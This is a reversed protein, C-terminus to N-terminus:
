DRKFGDAFWHLSSLTVESPPSGDLLFDFFPGDHIGNRQVTLDVHPHHMRVLPEFETITDRLLDLDGTTMLVRDVVQDAGRFWTKPAKLAQIYPTYVDPIDQLIARGWKTAISRNIIDHKCAYSPYKQTDALLIWPSILYAGRLPSSLTIRPVGDVPHLTHSIVQLVLNGGASDGTLHINQPSVGLDELLHKLGLVAQKLPIPFLADPYLTYELVAIGVDIGQKTLEQQIFKWFSLAPEAMPLLYAGGHLYLIVRDSTKSGIWYLRANSGLEEVIVPVNHKKAWTRYVQSTPGSIYQVQPIGLHLM